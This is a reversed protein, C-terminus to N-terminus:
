KYKIIRGSGSITKSIAPDGKLYINGSGSIIATLSKEVNTFIDGSGSIIISASELMLNEANIEGSGSIKLDSSENQGSLAINGSGSLFIDSSVCTCNNININGSGSLIVSLDTCIVKDVSIGGSGSMKIEVSNGSMEDALFTGSGSMFISELNPASVTILPKTDFDLCTSGNRTRIELTNNDTETVIYELLNEDAKINIGSTDAKKYVIDISTSNVIKNFAVVRRIETKEIGNGSICLLDKLCSTFTLLIFVGIVVPYRKIM